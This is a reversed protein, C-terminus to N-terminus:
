FPLIGARKKKRSKECEKKCGNKYNNKENNKYDIKLNNKPDIKPNSAASPATINLRRTAFKKSRAACAL